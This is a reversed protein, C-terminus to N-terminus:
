ANFVVRGTAAIDYGGLAKAQTAFDGTRVFALLMQMAPEFYARRALVLDMREVALPIFALGHARAAAEIGVGADAHRARITAALDTEALAPRALWDLSSPALKARELLHEFLRHSGAEPQRPVVRARKKRLDALTRIRLPNGPALLLGQTRKAWEFAVIQDVSPAVRLLPINYEGSARDLWHLAAVTADGRALRDLGARSGCALIALGCRSERAAWELLPDHSGAIIPPANNANAVQPLGSKAALWADIQRRPFLLKGTARIHPVAGRRVLDYVRREKLRLYAAVERTEMMEAAAAPPQPPTKQRSM